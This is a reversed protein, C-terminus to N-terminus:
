KDLKNSEHEKVIAKIRNLTQNREKKLEQRKSKDKMSEADDRLKKQKESLQQIEESTCNSAKKEKKGIVEKATEKCSNTIRKWTDDPSEGQTSTQTIKNRLERTYTNRTETDNFKDTNYVDPKKVEEPM